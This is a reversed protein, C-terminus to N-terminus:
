KSVTLIIKGAYDGERQSSIDDTSAFGFVQFAYFGNATVGAYQQVVEEDWKGAPWFDRNTLGKLVDFIIQEAERGNEKRPAKGAEGFYGIEKYPKIQKPFNVFFYPKPLDEAGRSTWAWYRTLMKDGSEHRLSEGTFTVLLGTNTELVFCNSDAIKGYGAQGSYHGFDMGPADEDWTYWWCDSDVKVKQAIVNAYPGIQALAEVNVSMDVHPNGEAAFVGMSLVFVLCVTLLAIKKM